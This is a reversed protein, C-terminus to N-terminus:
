GLDVGSADRIATFGGLLTQRFAEAAKFIALTPPIAARQQMSGELDALHDHCDILGPMLTKGQLNFPHAGSPVPLQIQPAVATIRQGEVVLAHPEETVPRGSGDLLRANYFYYPTTSV